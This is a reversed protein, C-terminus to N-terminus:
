TGDGSLSLPLARASLFNTQSQGLGKGIQTKLKVILGSKEKKKKKASLVSTTKCRHLISQNMDEVWLLRVGYCSSYRIKNVIVM